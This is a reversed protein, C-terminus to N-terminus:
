DAVSLCNPLVNTLALCPALTSRKDLALNTKIFLTSQALGMVEM